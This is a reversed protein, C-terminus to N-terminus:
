YINTFDGDNAVKTFAKILSKNKGILNMSKNLLKNEIKREFNFFEYIFDIGQSFIFNKHKIKKEFEQCVSSDLQLGLSIKKKIIKVLFNLDRLTMNFGQWALPHIKHLLDGFALINNYYYSRPFCSKLQFNEIKSIKTIEYKPNFKKIYLKIHDDKLFNKKKLSYVISTQNEDIPLFAIPGLKTFIQIATHNLIKKHQIIATYAAAKYDKEIKKFFIKKTISHNLDCNIILDYNNSLFSNKKKFYKSFNLCKKLANFIEYNKAILFLDKKDNEFSFLNKDLNDDTFIEIRNIKWSLKKINLINDNFFKFNSQSIGLTRSKSYRKSKYSSVIDTHIKLNILAKALTLSTLNEGLICVRM